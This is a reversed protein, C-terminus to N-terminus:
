HSSAVRNRMYRLVCKAARPGPVHGFRLAGWLERLGARATTRTLYEALTLYYEAVIARLQTRLKPDSEGSLIKARSAIKYRLVHETRKSMNGEHFRRLFGVEDIVGLGALHAVRYILDFDESARLEEDFAAVHEFVRRRFVPSSAIAYNETILIGAAQRASLVAEHQALAARLQPCTDFHSRPAQGAEDFNRYDMLVAGVQPHRELFAVQRILKEPVMLDDADFFTVYDGHAARLGTNRPSSCGGSNLQQLLRLPRGYRRVVAATEDRSGDDVVIVDLVVGTQAFISDLTAEILGAANYAPIIVSVLPLASV